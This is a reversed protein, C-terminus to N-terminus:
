QQRGVGADRRRFWLLLVAANVLPAIVSLVLVWGLFAFQFLNADM